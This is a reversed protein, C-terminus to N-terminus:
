AAPRLETPAAALKKLLADLDARTFKWNFPTGISQYYDQFGLLRDEVEALSGFDHPTLIAALIVQAVLGIAVQLALSGGMWLAGGTAARTLTLPASRKM